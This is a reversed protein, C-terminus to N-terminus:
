EDGKEMRTGDGSKLKRNKIMQPHASRLDYAQGIWAMFDIFAKAFNLKYGWESSSYDWPFVHHYNHWGEGWGMFAILINDRAEIYKDYSQDGYTHAVSNVLFIGNQLYCHQAVFAIFFSNRMSENWCWMPIITPLITAFFLAMLLYFRRHFRVVPDALLDDLYITKGKEVVDPHKKCMLWGIHAFFFGRKINHPDANTETFNHHVRHDRCWKYIDKQAAISLFCCLLIRLPLKAKYSRHSWLRHTGAAIGLGGLHAYIFAFLSTKWCASTFSLYLAYLFGTHLFIFFIVNFWIIKVKYEPTESKQQLVAEKVVTSSQAAMKKNTLFNLTKEFLNHFLM